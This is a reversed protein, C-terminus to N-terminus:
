DIFSNIQISQMLSQHENARRSEYDILRHQQRQLQTPQEVHEHMQHLLIAFSGVNRTLRM